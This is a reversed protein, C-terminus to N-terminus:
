KMIREGNVDRWTEVMAYVFIEVAAAATEYVAMKDLPWVDLVDLNWM